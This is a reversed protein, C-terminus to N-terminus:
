RFARILMRPTWTARWGTRCGGVTPTTRPGSRIPNSLQVGRISLVEAPVCFRGLPNDFPRNEFLVVVVHDLAERRDPM